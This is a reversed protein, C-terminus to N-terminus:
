DQQLNEWTMAQEAKRRRIDADAQDITASLDDVHDIMAQADIRAVIDGKKVMVGSSAVEILILARGSDPGRMMPAAVSAFNKASTSGTLRIIRQIPGSTVRATRIGVSQVARSQAKPKAIFQYVAGAGVVVLALLLWVRFSSRKKPPSPPVATIVPEPTLLPAPNLGHIASM